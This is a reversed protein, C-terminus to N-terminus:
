SRGLILLTWSFSSTVRLPKGVIQFHLLPNPTNMPAFSSSQLNFILSKIIFFTFRQSSRENLLPSIEWFPWPLRLCGKICALTTQDSCLPNSFAQRNMLTFADNWWNHARLQLSMHRWYEDGRSSHLDLFQARILFCFEMWWLNNTCSHLILDDNAM